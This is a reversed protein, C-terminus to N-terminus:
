EQSPKTSIYQGIEWMSIQRALSERSLGSQEAAEVMNIAKAAKSSDMKVRKMVEADHFTIDYIEYLPTVAWIYKHQLELQAYCLGLISTDVDYSKSRQYHNFDLTGDTSPSKLAVEQMWLELSTKSCTDGRSFGELVPIDPVSLSLLCTSPLGDRGARGVEQSYNELTKPMYLHVVIGKESTMFEQQIRARQENPLGAHYVLADLKRWNLADAVDQAQKQLTVYIIAPGTRKKLFPVLHEMKQVFNGAVDVQFSHKSRHVPMDFLGAKPDICFQECIDEAVHPTATATLCLVREVDMEKAFLAVKLYESQFSLGWQFYTLLQSVCHSEDVLLSIKVHKMMELFGENNLMVFRLVQRKPAVYLLKIKNAIVDHKLVRAAEVDLVSDLRILESASHRWVPPLPTNNKYVLSFVISSRQCGQIPHQCSFNRKVRLKSNDGQRSAIYSSVLSANYNKESHESVLSASARRNGQNACHKQYIGALVIDSVDM